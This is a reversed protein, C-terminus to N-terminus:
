SQLVEVCEGDMAVEYTRQTEWWAGDVKRGRDDHAQEYVQHNIICAGFVSRRKALEARAHACADDLTAHETHIAGLQGCESYDMFEEGGDWGNRRAGAEAKDMDLHEVIFREDGIQPKSM